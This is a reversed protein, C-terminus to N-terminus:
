SFFTDSRNVIDSLLQPLQTINSFLGTCSLVQLLVLAVLSSESRSTCGHLSILSRHNCTGDVAELSDLCPHVPVRAM